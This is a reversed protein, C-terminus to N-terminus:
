NELRCQHNLIYGGTASAVVVTLRGSKRDLAYNGGDTADHWSIEADSIRAPFTDVTSRDYDIRIQWHAGSATNTCTVAAEPPPAAIAGAKLGFALVAIGAFTRLSIMAAGAHGYNAKEGVTKHERGSNQAFQM